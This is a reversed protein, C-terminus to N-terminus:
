VERMKKLCFFVYKQSIQENQGRTAFLAANVTKGPAQKLHFNKKVVLADANELIVLIVCTKLIYQM